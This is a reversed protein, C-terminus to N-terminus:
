KRTATGGRDEEETKGKEGKGDEKTGDMALAAIEVTREGALRRPPLLRTAHTSSAHWTKLNYRSKAEKMSIACYSPVPIFYRTLSHTLFCSFVHNSSHLRVFSVGDNVKKAERDRDKIKVAMSDLVDCFDDLDILGSQVKGTIEEWADELSPSNRRRKTIQFRIM